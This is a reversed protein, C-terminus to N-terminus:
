ATRTIIGSGLVLDDRYIAATQGPAIALEPELFSLGDGEFRAPV